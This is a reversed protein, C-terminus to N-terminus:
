CGPRAPEARCSLLAGLARTVEERANEEAAKRRATGIRKGLYEVLAVVPIGVPYLTASRFQEPTVQELFEYHDGRFWPRINSPVPSWNEWLTEPKQEQVTVRFVPGEARTVLQVTMAPAEALARRIREIQAADGAEPPPGQALMLTLFLGAPM